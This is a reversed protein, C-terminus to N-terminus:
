MPLAAGTLVWDGACERFVEARWGAPLKKGLDRTTALVLLDGAVTVLRAGDFSFRIGCLPHVLKYFSEKASFLVIRVLAADGGCAPLLLAEEGPLAILSFAGDSVPRDAREVDLGLSRCRSLPAVAAAYLDRTHSISGCYGAPWLPEGAAGSPLDPEPLALMRCAKKVCTRGLRYEERRRGGMELVAAGERPALPLPVAGDRCVAFAAGAAAFRARAAPFLSEAFAPM